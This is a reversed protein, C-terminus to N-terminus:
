RILGPAQELMSKLAERDEPNIDAPPPYFLHGLKQVAIILVIASLIGFAVAAIQKIM